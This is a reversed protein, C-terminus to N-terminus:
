GHAGITATLKWLEWRWRRFYFLFSIRQKDDDLRPIQVPQMKKIPGQNNGLSDCHNLFSGKLEPKWYECTRTLIEVCNFPKFSFIVILIEVRPDLNWYHKTVTPFYKHFFKFKKKLILINKNNKYNQHTSIL